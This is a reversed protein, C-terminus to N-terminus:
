GSALKNAIDMTNGNILDGVGGLFGSATNAVDDLLDQVPDDQADGVANGFTGTPTGANSDAVFVPFDELMQQASREALQELDLPSRMQKIKNRMRELNKEFDRKSM